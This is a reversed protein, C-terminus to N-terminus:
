QLFDEVLNALILGYFSDNGSEYLWGLHSMCGACVAFSWDYGPFWTFEGTPEGANLCGPARSFCGIRFVMGAPNIFVHNHSGGHEIARDHSTIHHGCIKCLLRKEGAPEKDDRVLTETGPDAGEKGTRKFLYAPDNQIRVMPTGAKGCTQGPPPSRPEVMSFLGIRTSPKEEM